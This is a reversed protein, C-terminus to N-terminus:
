PTQSFMRHVSFQRWASPHIDRKFPEVGDKQPLVYLTYKLPFPWKLIGDYKGKMVQLYLAVHTGKSSGGGYLNANLRLNYGPESTYFSESNITADAKIQNAYNPVVWVFSKEKIDTVIHLKINKIQGM